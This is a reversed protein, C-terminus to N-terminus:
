RRLGRGLPKQVWLLRGTAARSQKGSRGSSRSWCPKIFPIPLSRLRWGSAAAQSSRFCPTSAIPRWCITNYNRCTSRLRLKRPSRGPCCLSPKLSRRRSTSSATLPPQWGVSSGTIPGTSSQISREDSNRQFWERNLDETVLGLQVILVDSLDRPEIEGRKERWLRLLAADDPGMITRADSGGVFGRRDQLPPKSIYTPLM